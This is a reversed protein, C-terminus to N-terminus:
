SASQMHRATQLCGKNYHLDRLVIIRDEPSTNMFIISPNRRFILEAITKVLASFFTHIAAVRIPLFVM